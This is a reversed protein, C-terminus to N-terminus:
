QLFKTMEQSVELKEVGNIVPNKTIEGAVIDDQYIMKRYLAVGDLFVEYPVRGKCRKAQNTRGRNYLNM